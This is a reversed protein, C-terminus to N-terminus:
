KEGLPSRDGGYGHRDAETPAKDVFPRLPKQRLADRAQHVFRATPAPRVRSGRLLLVAQVRSLAMADCAARALLPTADCCPHGVGHDLGIQGRLM